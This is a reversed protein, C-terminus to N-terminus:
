PEYWDKEDGLILWLWLAVILLGPWCLAAPVLNRWTAHESSGIATAMIAGTIIVGLIYIVFIIM